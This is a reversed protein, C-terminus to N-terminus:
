LLHADVPENDPSQELYKLGRLEGNENIAVLPRFAVADIALIIRRDTVDEPIAHNWREISRGIRSIDQLADSLIRRTEALRSNLLREGPLPMVQRVIELAAPCAAQIQRTWILKEISYWCGSPHRDRKKVFDLYTRDYHSQMLSHNRTEQMLCRFEKTLAQIKTLTKAFNTRSANLQHELTQIRETDRQHERAACVLVSM